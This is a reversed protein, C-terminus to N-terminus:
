FRITKLSFAVIKLMLLEQKLSAAWRDDVATEKSTLDKIGGLRQKFGSIIIFM